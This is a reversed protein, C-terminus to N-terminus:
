NILIGKHAGGDWLRICKDSGGSILGGYLLPQLARPGESRPQPMYLEQMCFERSLQLGPRGNDELISTMQPSMPPTPPPALATPLEMKGVETEDKPIVRFVQRCRGQDVSWLGIENGSSVVYILPSRSGEINKNPLIKSIGLLKENALAPAM